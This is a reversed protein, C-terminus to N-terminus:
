SNRFFYRHGDAKLFELIGLLLHPTIEYYIIMQAAKSLSNTKNIGENLIYISRHLYTYLIQFQLLNM